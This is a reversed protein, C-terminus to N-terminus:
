WDCLPTPANLDGFLIFDDIDFQPLLLMKCEMQQENYAESYDPVIVLTLLYKFNVESKNDSIHTCTDFAPGM